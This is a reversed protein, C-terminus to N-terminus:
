FNNWTHSNRSDGQIDELKNVEERAEEQLLLAGKVSVIRDYSNWQLCGRYKVRTVHEKEFQMTEIFNDLRYSSLRSFFKFLPM